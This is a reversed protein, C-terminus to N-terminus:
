TICSRLFALITCIAAVIMLLSIIGGRKKEVIREKNLLLAMAPSPIRETEASVKSERKYDGRQREAKAWMGAGVAILAMIILVAEAPPNTRLLLHCALLVFVVILIRVVWIVPGTM